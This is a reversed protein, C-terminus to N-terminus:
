MMTLSRPCLPTPPHFATVVVCLNASSAYCWGTATADISCLVGLMTLVGTPRETLTRAPPRGQVSRAKVVCKELIFFLPSNIPIYTHARTACQTDPTDHTSNNLQRFDLTVM